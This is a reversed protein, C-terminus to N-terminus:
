KLFDAFFEKSIAILDMDYRYYVYGLNFLADELASLEEFKLNIIEMNIVLPKYRTFDFQKFIIYDYGETDIQLVDIRPLPHKDLLKALTLCAVPTKIIFPEYDQLKTASFTSMGQLWEPLNNEKIAEATVRYLIKNETSEAIAVNEFILGEQNNYNIKLREMMDPLPEVLIGKWSFETVFPFIPDYSVGDMAGIQLFYIPKKVRSLELFVDNPRSYPFNGFKGCMQEKLANYSASSHKQITVFWALSDDKHTLDIFKDSSLICKSNKLYKDFCASLAIQDLFWVHNGCSLNHNIFRATEHIYQKAIDGNNLYLFGAQIQEWFPSSESESVIIEYSKSEDGYLSAWNKRFLADADVIILSSNFYNLLYDAAIFRRTSFQVPANDKSVEIIEFTSTIQLEPLTVFLKEIFSIVSHNPNYCHIHVCVEGRNTEYISYILALAHEYFYKNDCAILITPIKRELKAPTILWHYCNGSIDSAGIELNHLTLFDIPSNPIGGLKHLCAMSMLSVLPLDKFKEEEILQILYPLASEYEEEMIYIMSIIRLVTPSSKVLDPDSKCIHMVEDIEGIRYLLQVTIVKNIASPELNLVKGLGNSISDVLVRPLKKQTGDSHIDLFLNAQSIITLIMKLVLDKKSGYKLLQETLAITDCADSMLYTKFVDIPINGITSLNFEKSLVDRYYQHMNKVRSYGPM